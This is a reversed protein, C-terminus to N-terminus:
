PERVRKPTCYGFVVTVEPGSLPVISNLTYSGAGSPEDIVFTFAHAKDRGQLVLIEGDREMVRIDYAWKEGSAATAGWRRRELDIEIFVPLRVQQPRDGECSGDPTCRKAVSVTCLFSSAGRLDDAFCVSAAGLLVASSLLSLRMARNDWARRIVAVPGRDRGSDVFDM